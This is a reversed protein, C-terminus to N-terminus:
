PSADTANWRRGAPPPEHVVIELSVVAGYAKENSVVVTASPTSSKRLPAVSTAPVASVEGTTTALRRISLVAGPAVMSLGPLGTRPVTASVDLVLSPPEPM